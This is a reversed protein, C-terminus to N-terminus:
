LQPSLNRVSGSAEGGKFVAQRRQAVEQKSRAHCLFKRHLATHWQTSTLNVDYATKLVDDLERDCLNGSGHATVLCGDVLRKVLFPEM